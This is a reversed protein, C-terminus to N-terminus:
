GFQNSRDSPHDFLFVLDTQNFDHLANNGQIVIGLQHENTFSFKFFLQFTCCPFQIQPVLHYECPRSGIHVVQQRGHIHKDKGRQGFSKSNHKDFGLSRAKGAYESVCDWIIHVQNWFEESQLAARVQEQTHKFREFAIIIRGGKKCYGGKWAEVKIGSDADYGRTVVGLSYSDKDITTQFM